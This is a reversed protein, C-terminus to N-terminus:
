LVGNKSNLVGAVDVGMQLGLKILCQTLLFVFNPLSSVNFLTIEALLLINNISHFWFFCNFFIINIVVDKDLSEEAINNRGAREANCECMEDAKPSTYSVWGADWSKDDCHRRAKGKSFSTIKISKMTSCKMM